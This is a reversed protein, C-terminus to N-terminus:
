GRSIMAQNLAQIIQAIHDHNKSKYATVEGGATRLVVCFTPRSRIIIFIDAILLLVGIIGLFYEGRFLALSMFLALLGLLVAGIYNVPTKVGQVSTIGRMAFTQSGVVFRANTVAIDGSNFFSNEDAM